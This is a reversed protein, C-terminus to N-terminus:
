PPAPTPRVCGSQQSEESKGERGGPHFGLETLVGRILTLMLMVDSEKGEAAETM